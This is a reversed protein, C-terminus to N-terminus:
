ENILPNPKGLYFGQGYDVGLRCIVDWVNENEVFEAITEKGLMHAASNMAQVLAYKRSDSDMNKVFSGDIKLYDIPLALLYSFSSFGTGFDDLAFRCGLTKLRAIWNEIKSINRVAATETIEFGIRARNIGAEAICLEVWELFTDDALSVGSLNIFVNTNKFQKMKKLTNEIVWKDIEQVIGYREAIPIFASPYILSSNEGIMRILAEFYFIDKNAKYVPQFHLMFKDKELADHILALMKNNNSVNIKDDIDHLVYARNKGKEKAKFLAADAFSYLEDPKISDNIMTIGISATIRIPIQLNRVFFLESNLAKLLQQSFIQAEEINKGYLVIAFEDGGPRAFFDNRDLFRNILVSVKKLIEDGGSHGYTDNITKFNDLDIFLFASEKYESVSHINRLFEELYNRNPIGTLYDFKALYELEGLNKKHYRFKFENVKKNSIDEFLYLRGVYNDDNDRVQGSFRRIIRGDNFIIEDEIVSRNNEDQLPTCTKSFGEVDKIMPICYPIIDNNKFAGKKLQDELYEIGWMKCFQNNFYLINDTRNDVVLCALPSSDVIARSLMNIDFTNKVPTQNIGTFSSEMVRIYKDGYREKSIILKELDSIM